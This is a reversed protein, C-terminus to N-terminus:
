YVIRCFTNTTLHHSASPHYCWISTHPVILHKTSQQFHTRFHRPSYASPLHSQNTDRCNGHLSHCRRISIVSLPQAHLLGALEEPKLNCDYISLVDPCLQRRAAVTRIICWWEHPPLRLGSLSLAIQNSALLARRFTGCVTALTPLLIVLSKSPTSDSPVPDEMYSAALSYKATFWCEPVFGLIRSLLEPPLRTTLFPAVVTAM